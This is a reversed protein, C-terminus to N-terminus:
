DVTVVSLEKQLKDFESTLYVGYSKFEEKSIQMDNDKDVHPRLKAVLKDIFPQMAERSPVPTDPNRETVFFKLSTYVLHNFEEQDILGDNNSDFQNWLTDLNGSTLFNTVAKEDDIEKKTGTKVSSMCGM